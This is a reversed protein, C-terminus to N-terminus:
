ARQWTIVLRDGSPRAPPRLVLTDGSLTVSRVQDTGLMAASVSLEVHTSLTMTDEDFTFPGCYAVYRPGTAGAQPAQPEPFAIQASVYGSPSLVILGTVDYGYPLTVSGDRAHSEWRVLRWAGTLKEATGV